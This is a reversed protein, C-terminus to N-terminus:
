VNTIIKTDKKWHFQISLLSSVVDDGDVLETGDAVSSIAHLCHM